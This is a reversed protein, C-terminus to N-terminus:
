EVYSISGRIKIPKDKVEFNPGFLRGKLADFEEQSAWHDLGGFGDIEDQPM